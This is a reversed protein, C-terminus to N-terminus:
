WPATANVFRTFTLLPKLMKQTKRLMTQTEAQITEWWTYQHYTKEYQRFFELTEKLATEAAYIEDRYEASAQNFAGQENQNNRSNSNTEQKFSEYDNAKAELFFRYGCLEVLLTESLRCASFIESSIGSQAQCASKFGRSVQSVQTQGLTAEQCAATDTRSFNKLNRKIKRKAQEASRDTAQQNWYNTTQAFAENVLCNVQKDYENKKTEVSDNIDYDISAHCLEQTITPLNNRFNEDLQFAQITPKHLVFFSILSIFIVQLLTYTHNKQGIM